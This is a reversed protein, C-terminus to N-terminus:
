NDDKTLYEYTIRLIHQEYSEDVEYTYIPILWFIKITRKEKAYKFPQNPLLVGLVLLFGEMTGLIKHKYSPWAFEDICHLKYNLYLNKLFIKTNEM